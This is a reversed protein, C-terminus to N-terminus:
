DQNLDYFKKASLRELPTEAIAEVSLTLTDPKTYPNASAAARAKGEPSLAFSIAEAIEDATDGCHIVSESCLRGKQRIGINM